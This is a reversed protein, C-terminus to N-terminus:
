GKAGFWVTVRCGRGPASEVELRAGMERVRAAINALGSGSGIVKAPDFGAGDDAVSLVTQAGQQQLRIEVHSANSHRLSNSVCERAIQLAHLEEQATLAHTAPAAIELKLRLPHLGQLTEVLSQLALSFQPQPESEPELGNIFGRVQGITQNLSSVAAGLRKEALEPEGRLQGRVSELGLGAAYISQIVSDHLDRALRTRLQTSRRLEVEVRMREEIEKELATRGAFFAETLRALRGFEDKKRRLPGLASPSKETLSQEIRRLPAIVWLSLYLLIIAMGAIGAGIIYLLEASNHEQLQALPTAAYRAHLVAVPHGDWGPLERRIAIDFPKRDDPTERGPSRLVVDSALVTGLSKLVAEDWQRTVLFWGKPPQNQLALDSPMIPAARIELLGEASEVFFQLHEEHQLRPLIATVDFPPQQLNAQGPRAAGYALSGDPRFVWAARAHFTPLSDDINIVAWAKDGTNLFAVMDDWRAYDNAFTQLSEGTLQLLGELLRVREQQQATLIQRAERKDLQHLLLAGAVFAVLLLGLLFALRTRTKM